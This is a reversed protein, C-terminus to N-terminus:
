PREFDERIPFGGDRALAPSEWSIPLCPPQASERRPLHLRPRAKIEWRRAASVEADFHYESNSVYRRNRKGTESNIGNLTEGGGRVRCVRNM